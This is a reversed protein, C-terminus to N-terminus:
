WGLRGRDELRGRDARGQPDHAAPGIWVDDEIIVPRRPVMPRPRGRGLPSCAVADAVREAPAIPHFDTDAITTNWAIAVYNGIRVELECLLVTGNFYCFDGISLRGEPGVAFHVSEM